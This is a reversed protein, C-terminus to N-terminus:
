HLLLSFFVPQKASENKYPCAGHAMSVQTMGMRANLADRTMCVCVHRVAPRFCRDLQLALDEEM